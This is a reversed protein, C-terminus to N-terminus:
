LVDIPDSPHGLEEYITRVEKPYLKRRRNGKLEPLFHFVVPRFERWTMGYEDAIESKTKVECNLHIM